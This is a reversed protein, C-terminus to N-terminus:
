VVKLKVKRCGAKVFLDNLKLQYSENAVYSVHLKIM